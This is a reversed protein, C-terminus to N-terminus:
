IVQQDSDAFCIGLGARRGTLWTRDQRYAGGSDQQFVMVRPDEGTAALKTGDQSFCLSRIWGNFTNLQQSQQGTSLDWFRISLDKGGSVLLPETPHFELSQVPSKCEQMELAIARATCSAPVLYPTAQM